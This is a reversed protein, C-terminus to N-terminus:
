RYNLGDIKDTRINLCYGGYKGFGARSYEGYQKYCNNNMNNAEKIIFLVGLIFVITMLLLFLIKSKTNM